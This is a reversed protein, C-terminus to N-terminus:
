LAVWILKNNINFKELPIRIARYLKPKIPKIPKPKQVIIKPRICKCM